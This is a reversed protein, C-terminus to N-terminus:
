EELFTTITMTQNHLECKANPTFPSIEGYSYYGTIVSAKGIIDRVGEIEEEVRQKLVLKRGVCSILLALDPTRSGIAEYGTKAASTAGDILRDFNAKMFQTYSGEPIDGAFTISKENEDVALITRVVGVDNTSTRLNLPFLLGSAPLDKAYEGLYKKYLDLASEGNLEYLVNNKSRTVLRQPGFADWGGLSGFGIRIRNGYLGLIAITGTEVTENWIVYTKRFAAGDGALGGTVTVNRPLSSTLGRVLESGNVELGDSFVIVHNLDKHSILGSLHKGADFSNGFDKLKIRGGAISTHEFNVATTVLSDDMVITDCIEGSTSCGMIIANKYIGKISRFLESNDMIKSGGFAFVLQASDSLEGPKGSMWGQQLSWKCQEIKM